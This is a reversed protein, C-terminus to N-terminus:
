YILSCCGTLVEENDLMDNQPLWQFWQDNNKKKRWKEGCFVSDAEKLLSSAMFVLNVLRNEQPHNNKLVLATCTWFVSDARRDPLTLPKVIWDSAQQITSLSM